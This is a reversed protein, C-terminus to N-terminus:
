QTLQMKTCQGAIITVNGSWTYGNNRVQRASFSYIGPAFLYGSWATGTAGCEPSSNYNANITGMNRGGCSVDINYSGGTMWFTVAGLADNVNLAKKLTTNGGKGRLVVSVIYSGNQQYQYIPSVAYFKGINDGTDWNYVDTNTANCIFSYQGRGLPTIEIIGTPPPTVVEPTKCQTLFLVFIISYFLSKKM